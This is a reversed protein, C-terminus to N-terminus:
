ILFKKVLRNAQRYNKIWHIRKDRKFWTMQRKAYYHIAQRLNEVMQEYTVKKQLYLGIHRYELGFDFLRFWSLGQLHLKRVENIMGLRFRKDLRQDILNYLKKRPPNLGIILPKFIKQGHLPTIPKKTSKIIEIARILRYPNQPDINKARKPDLKKLLAHLKEVPLKSLKKRLSPNPKVRPFDVNDVVAQIWFGTGGVLFPIKKRKQIKKIVALADKKFHSVNYKQRPSVIDLMYHKVATQEKKSAKGTGIDMGTYVQRSDASIIEGNFKKALKISLSTKGSANPGVVVILKDM